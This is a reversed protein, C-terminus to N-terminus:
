YSTIFNFKHPSGFNISNSSSTVEFDCYGTAIFSWLNSALIYMNYVFLLQQMRTSYTKERKSAMINSIFMIVVQM